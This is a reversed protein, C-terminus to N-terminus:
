ERRAGHALAEEAVRNEAAEHARLAYAFRRFEDALAKWQGASSGVEKARKAIQGLQALLPAHQREVVTVQPGLRPLRCIAEDLLGGQEEEEFHREIHALLDDITEPLVSRAEGGHEGGAASLQKEVAELLRNLDRHETVFKAYFPDQGQLTMM